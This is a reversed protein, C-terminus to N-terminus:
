GLRSRYPIRTRRFQPDGVDWGLTHLVPDILVQRTRTENGELYPRHAQIRERLTEITEKLDDLAM